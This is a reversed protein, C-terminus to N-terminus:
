RKYISQWSVNQPISRFAASESTYVGTEHLMLERGNIYRFSLVKYRAQGPVRVIMRYINRQKLSRHSVYESNWVRVNYNSRAYIRLQNAPTFWSGNFWYPFSVPQWGSYFLNNNNQVVNSAKYYTATGGTSLQTATNYNATSGTVAASISNGSINRFYFTRYTNQNNKRAIIRYRGNGYATNVVTYYQNFYRISNSSPFYYINQGQSNNYRGRLSSPFAVNRYSTNVAAPNNRYLKSTQRVQAVQALQKSNYPGNLSYDITSAMNRKYLYLSYWANNAFTLVVRANGKYFIDYIRHQKNFLTASSTSIYQRTGNSSYWYGTLGVLSTTKAWGSSGAVYGTNSSTTTTRNTNNNTTSQTNTNRNVTSGAKRFVKMNGRKVKYVGKLNKYKKTKLDVKIENSNVFRYFIARYRNDRKLVMMYNENKRNKMINVIQHLNNNLYMQRSNAFRLQTGGSTWTGTLAASYGAPAYSKKQATLGSVIILMSVFILRM